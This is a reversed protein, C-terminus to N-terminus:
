ILILYWLLLVVIAVKVWFIIELNSEINREQARIQYKLSTRLFNRKQPLKRYEEKLNLLKRRGAINRQFVDLKATLGVYYIKQQLLLAMSSDKIIWASFAMFVPLATFSKWSLYNTEPQLGIFFYFLFLVGGSTLSVRIMNQSHNVSKGLDILKKDFVVTGFLIGYFFVAISLHIIMENM